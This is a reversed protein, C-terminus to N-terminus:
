YNLILLENIRGRKEGNCNIARHAQVTEIRFGSYLERIAAIDSNSQMVHCGKQSLSKFVEALREQDGFNFAGKTYGTFNSTSSLPHYPPDLYVFDNQRAKSVVKEFPQCVIQANSLVRSVAHINQVDVLKPNKYRGFPVNFQGKRNVRYLGNFCTKNLFIMRAAREADDLEESILERIKYFYHIDNRHERLEEIVADPQDRLMVYCNILEDNCDSIVAKLGHNRAALSFFVAGGGLFPEFYRNFTKPYFKDFTSLLQSKGGAWKLFPTAPAKVLHRVGTGNARRAPQM